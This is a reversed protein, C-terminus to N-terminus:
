VKINMIKSGLFAAVLYLMFCITMFVRGAAGEYLPDFYGVSTVELYAMLVFPVAEMIRLELKKESLINYIENEVYIGSRIRDATNSLVETINGGNRKASKCVDSFLAIEKDNSRKALDDILEELSINIELGRHIRKLEEAMLSDEGYFLEIDKRAEVFANELSYGSRMNISVSYLVESFEDLLKKKRREILEKRFRMLFLPYAVLLVFFAIMSRYFFFSIVGDGLIFLGVSVIWETACMKYKEYNM